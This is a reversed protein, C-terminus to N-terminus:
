VEGTTPPHNDQEEDEPQQDDPPLSARVLGVMYEHGRMAKELDDYRQTDQDHEGGFTFIHM